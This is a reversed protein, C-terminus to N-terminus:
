EGVPVSAPATTPQTTASMKVRVVRNRNLRTVNLRVEDQGKTLTDFDKADAVPKDNVHTIFEFPKLGAQSAKSGLEIRAIVVGPDKDERKLYRRVEYTMNKVTLGLGEHKFKAATGWHAPSKVAELSKMEVKGGDAVEVKFATGFGLDTLTRILRNEVPAWPTPIREFVEEPATGLRDWPFRNESRFDSEMQVDIPKPQDAVHVRLLIQGEKIGAKAAPSGPYVYAVMAGTSGDGTQETVQNARALEANLPQLDLGLWAVQNQEEETLPTNNPDGYKVIDKAHTLVMRYDVERTSSDSWREKVAAKTRLNMPVSVLEGAMNFAFPNQEHWTDPYVIDGKGLTPTDMRTFLLKEIRQEGKISLDALPLLDGVQARLDQSSAVLPTGVAKAPRVVIAGLDKLSAVFQAEVVEDKPGHIRIKELRATTRANMNELVVVQDAATVLGLAYVVPKIADERDGDSEGQRPTRFNLTVKVIGGAALKGIEALKKDMQEPQLYPLQAPNGMWKDAEGLEHQQVVGLPEGAADLILEMRSFERFERGAETVVESQPWASRKTVWREQNPAFEVGGKPKGEAKFVLPQVGAVPKIKLLMGDGKAFYGAPTAVQRQGGIEVEVQKIFRGPTVPDYTLVLDPAVLYGGVRVPREQKISEESSNFDDVNRQLGPAGMLEGKDYQWTWYVKAMAGRVAASVPVVAPATAVPATAAEQAMLPMLGVSAVALGLVYAVIQCRM